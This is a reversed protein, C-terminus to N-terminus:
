VTTTVATTTPRVTTTTPRVTTTTPRVATTVATTTPRVATTVATTTTRLTTTVDTTTPRVTTTTVASTIPMVTTNGASSTEEDIHCVIDYSLPKGYSLPVLEFITGQPLTGNWSVKLFEDNHFGKAIVNGCQFYRINSFKDNSGSTTKLYFANDQLDNRDPWRVYDHVWMDTIPLWKSVPFEGSIAIWHDAIFGSDRIQFYSLEPRMPISPCSLTLDTNCAYDIYFFDKVANNKLYFFTLATGDPVPGTVNLKVDHIAPYREKGPLLDFHINGCQGGRFAVGFRDTRTDHYKNKSRTRIYITKHQNLDPLPYVPKTLYKGTGSLYSTFHADSAFDIWHEKLLLKDDGCFKIFHGKRKAPMVTTNGASSTEEDIHCVIDYSLPKGYSLPVLEFITGQPLTGNWSVKLFEDNHFGAAIVNGCQFNRINSFKDNSGSTTKLYFANDQLDNRDPWRVYDHVWMDTIPLWKSVPFEGSIAIWHDAIFGSDRIQFYSLEPRMPISPCSLTLDTNCAYDIYFFDKVANNKLYFFTLATGDPVPGTVNLKVDHIAPYREKGPLLDFHINGCQGGRFAVGFRDTRTDHYKNKSRTRIYITKHQNLDPLPYVPKTLYKGTGSLYSTFHADSAFDIWHEKLLMKDDGCFKIFHGKTNLSSRATTTQSAVGGSQNQAMSINSENHRVPHIVAGRAKGVSLMLLLVTYMLMVVTLVSTNRM